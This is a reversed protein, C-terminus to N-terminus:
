FHDMKMGNQVSETPKDDVMRSSSEEDQELGATQQDCVSERGSVDTEHKGNKRCSSFETDMGTEAEEERRRQRESSKGKEVKNEVSAAVKREKVEEEEEEEHDRKRKKELTQTGNQEGSRPRGNVNEEERQEEPSKRCEVLCNQGKEGQEESGRGEEPKPTKVTTRSGALEGQLRSWTMVASSWQHRDGLLRSQLVSAAKAPSTHASIKLPSDDKLLLFLREAAKLDSVKDIRASSSFLVKGPMQCVHEAALKKKVEDMLFPEMGNGATCFYRVSSGESKPEAMINYFHRCYSM